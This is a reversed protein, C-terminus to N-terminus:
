GGVKEAKEKQRNDLTVGALISSAFLDAIVASRFLSQLDPLMAMGRDYTATNMLLKFMFQYEAFLFGFVLINTFFFLTFALHKM